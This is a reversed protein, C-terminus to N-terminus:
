ARHTGPDKPTEEPLFNKLRLQLQEQRIRDRLERPYMQLPPIRGYHTRMLLDRAIPAAVKSGSGGNEVVVSVAFLPDHFPAYCCFLAHDRQERPLDKNKILGSRRELESINRVQSTGTKGAVTFSEDATRSQYATGYPSNVTEVMGRRMLELANESVGLSLFRHNPRRRGDVALIIKPQVSLGTALRATMVTLQLASALVFGQGIGANLTDGLLWSKEYRRLKWERTPALGEAIGPIPLEARRGIGFRVAMAMLAEIGVRQALQYYYVDCSESISKLLDVKGHGDNKWCHFVRNSFELSGECQLIEDAAILGADLAALATIMKFTSGPPYIGQVPRNVLPTRKDEVLVDFEAQTIGTSLKNPDFTPSSAIALLEGNKVNMIVASAAEEGLRAVAYNQLGSDVTLQFSSGNRAGVAGLERMIRGHVNVEIRQNGARGRLQRDLSKEVGNKGIRFDPVNLLLDRTKQSNQEKKNVLGVFGVLHAFDPGFPYVRRSGVAAQVGPLAPANASVAAVQEWSAEHAVVVPIHERLGNIEQIKEFMQDQTMPIFRSLKLLVDAVDGAEERVLLIKYLQENGALQTGGRDYILGREPILLRISIRNRDALGALKQSETVQLYRLRAAIATLVAAQGAGIIFARRGISSRQRILEPQLTRM